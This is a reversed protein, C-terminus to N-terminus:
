QVLASVSLTTQSVGCQLHLPEEETTFSVSTLWAPETDGLTVHALLCHHYVWVGARGLAATVAREVQPDGLHLASPDPATLVVHVRHGQVGLEQLTEVATFIDISNGYVVANDPCVCLTFLM